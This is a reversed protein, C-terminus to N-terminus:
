TTYWRKCTESHVESIKMPLRSEQPQNKRQRRALKRRIKEVSRSVASTDTTVGPETESELVREIEEAQRLQSSFKKNEREEKQIKGERSLVRFLQKRYEIRRKRKKWNDEKEGCGILSSSDPKVRCNCVPLIGGSDV